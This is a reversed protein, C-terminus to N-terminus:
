NLYQSPFLNIKWIWTILHSTQLYQSEREARRRGLIWSLGIILGPICILLLWLLFHTQFSLLITWLFSSLQFAFRFGCFNESSVFLSCLIFILFRQFFCGFLFSIFFFMLHDILYIALRINWLRCQIWDMWRNLLRSM